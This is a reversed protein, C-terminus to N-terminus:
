AASESSQTRTTEPAELQLLKAELEGVKRNFTMLQEVYGRRESAFGEREKQLQEIFFDKGRNTIKLDFNEQQLKKITDEDGGSIPATDNSREAGKPVNGDSESSEIRKSAKAKEEAIALEVSQPTIYYKHDNSDLYADLRPVGMKNPQCWNTISRETRAVGAAEFM